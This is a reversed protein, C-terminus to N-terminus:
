WGPPTYCRCGALSTAVHFKGRKERRTSCLPTDPQQFSSRQPAMLIALEDSPEVTSVPKETPEETTALEKTAEKPSDLEETPGETPALEDTSEEAEQPIPPLGLEEVQTGELEKTIPAPPTEM